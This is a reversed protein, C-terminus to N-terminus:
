SIKYLDNLVNINNIINGKNNKITELFYPWFNNKKFPFDKNLSVVIVMFQIFDISKSNIM